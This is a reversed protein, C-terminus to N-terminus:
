DADASDPNQKLQCTSRARMLADEYAKGNEEVREALDRLVEDPIEDRLDEAM